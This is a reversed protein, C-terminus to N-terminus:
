SVSHSYQISGDGVIITSWNEVIYQSDPKLISYTASSPTIQSGNRYVELLTTQAKGRELLETVRVRASYPTDSSM